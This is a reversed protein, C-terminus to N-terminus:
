KVAKPKAVPKPRLQAQQKGQAMKAQHEVATLQLDQNHIQTQLALQRRHEAESTENAIKAKEQELGLAEQNQGQLAMQEQEAQAQQQQMQFEQQLQMNEKNMAQEGLLMPMNSMVQGINQDQQIQAQGLTAMELHVDIMEEVVYRLEQPSYQLEDSDLLDSLWEVKQQFYPEKTSIPPTLRSVISSALNANDFSEGVVQSMIEQTQLEEELMEKAQEIRKRCIRAIDTQKPVTLKAGFAVAVEGAFEPDVQKLEAFGMAGGTFQFMQMQPDRQQYPSQPVESNSVIEFDVDVGDFRSGTLYKGATIANKTKTPFWKNADIYKKFLNFTVIAGRRRTDAKRLHQPVLVMEANADGIKAGTATKNDVGPLGNSFDTVQMSIQLNNELRELYAFSSQAPNSPSLPAILQNVDHVGDPAQSFDIAINKRAKGIDRADQESIVNSNYGYGPMAHTKIHTLLQSHLDNLDKMADVADSIGKGVGTFAQAHYVGSVIHDRHDEAHIAWVINMQNLGVVVMGKPFLKTLSAGAPITEGSVTKTPADVEWDCYESPQLWMEIVTNEDSVPDYGGYPRDKGVGVVNGGTRALRDIIVQGYDYSDEGDSAIEADLLDELVATKEKSEYIFYGSEEPSYRIDWRCAPFPLNECKIDKLYPDYRYRAIYTGFGAASAFEVKEYDNTYHKKAYYDQIIKVDSLYEEVQDGVSPMIPDLEPRSSFWEAELKTWYFQFKGSVTKNDSFVGEKKVFAFQGTRVSRMLLLKGTQLNAVQEGVTCNEVFAQYDREKCRLYKERILDTLKDSARDLRNQALEKLPQRPAFNKGEVPYIADATPSTIRAGM